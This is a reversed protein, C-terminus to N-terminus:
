RYFLHNRFTLLLLWTLPSLFPNNRYQLLMACCPKLFAVLVWPTLFLQKQNKESAM